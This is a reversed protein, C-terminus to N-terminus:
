AGVEPLVPMDEVFFTGEPLPDEEAQAQLSLEYDLDRREEYIHDEWGAPMEDRVQARIIDVASPVESLDIPCELWETETTM